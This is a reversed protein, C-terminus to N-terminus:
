EGPKRAVVVLRSADYGYEDGDLNGFLKIDEFGTQKIRDKMEQGSYITHHFHYSTAQGDKILIWENRIRSWDDFIEHVQVLRSGDEHTSSITSQFIRALWEKGAMELIVVGGPKLSTFMNGLVQMDEDKDDFYGFSTFMNIVLDFCGPRVFDRMDLHVWEIEADERAARERAKDLLFGTRDVGTVKFGAKAMAISYRGPGCCLDLVEKGTPKTLELVKEMEEPSRDFREKSFMYPYLDEWFADDDFWEAKHREGAEAM